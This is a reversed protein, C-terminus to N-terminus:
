GFCNALKNFHPMLYRHYLYSVALTFSMVIIVIVLIKGNGNPIALYAPCGISYIVLAHTLYIEFSISGLWLFVKNSLLQRIWRCSICLFLYAAPLIIKYSTSIKVFSSFVFLAFVLFILLRDYKWNNNPRYHAFICGIVIAMYNYDFFGSIVLFLLLNVCSQWPKAKANALGLMLSFVSGWFIYCMMWLPNIWHYHNQVTTLLMAKPLQRFLQYDSLLWESNLQQGLELHHFLGLAKCIAAIILTACIPITLRFYRKRLTSGLSVLNGNLGKRYMLMASIAIFIKVAFGGYFSLSVFPIKFLATATPSYGLFAHFLHDLVVTLACIGKLGDLYHIRDNKM